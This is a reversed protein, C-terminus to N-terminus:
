SSGSGGARLGGLVLPLAHAKGAILLREALQASVTPLKFTTLLDGLRTEMELTFVSASATM